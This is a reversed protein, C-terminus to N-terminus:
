AARRQGGSRRHVFAVLDALRGAEAELTGSTQANSEALGRNQQTIRELEAVANTIGQVGHAQEASAGSIERIRGSLKKVSQMIEELADGSQKVLATGESVQAGSESILRGIDSAAASSRQALTRVEAAVVAFGKGADGARAAEVAANLALLNTQFSIANIVSTIESIKASAQEIANVAAVANQVVDRGHSARVEADSALRTGEEANEATTRVTAAIEEMTAATEELTSAQAEARKALDRGGSAIGAADANIRAVGADIESVMGALREAMANFATRLREFDGALMTPITAGLDGEALRQMGEALLRVAPVRETVDSALKVVRMPRGKPGPVPVYSAQLWLARRAKTFRRVAGDCLEGRRLRARFEAHAASGAEAPDVLIRHNQGILEDRRYGMLGLFTDNAAIVRGDLDFEIVARSDRIAALLAAENAM